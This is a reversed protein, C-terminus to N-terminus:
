YWIREQSFKNSCFMMLVLFPTCGTM